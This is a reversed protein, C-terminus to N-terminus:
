ASGVGLGPRVQEAKRAADVKARFASNCEDAGSHGPAHLTRHRWEGRFFVSVVHWCDGSIPKGCGACTESAGSMKPRIANTKITIEPITM